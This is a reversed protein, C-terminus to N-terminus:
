VAAAHPAMPGQRRSLSSKAVPDIRDGARRDACRATAAVSEIGRHGRESTSALGLVRVTGPLRRVGPVHVARRGVDMGTSSVMFAIEPIDVSGLDQEGFFLTARAAKGDRDVRVGLRDINPTEIPSGYCNLHVFGMDDQVVLVVHPAQPAPVAPEPWWPQSDALTRGIVGHFDELWENM